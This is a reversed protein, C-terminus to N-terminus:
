RQKKEKSKIIIPESYIHLSQFKKRRVIPKNISPSFEDHCKHYHKGPSNSLLIERIAIREKDNEFKKKTPSFNPTFFLAKHSM